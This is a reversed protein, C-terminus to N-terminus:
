TLRRRLELGILPVAFLALAPPVPVPNAIAFTFSQSPFLLATQVSPGPPFYYAAYVFSSDVLRAFGPSGTGNLNPTELQTGLDAALAAALSSNGWWAQEM